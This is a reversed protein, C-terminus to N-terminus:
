IQQVLAPERKVQVTRPCRGGIKPGALSSSLLTMNLFSTNFHRISRAFTLATALTILNKLEWVMFDCQCGWIDFPGNNLSPIATRFIDCLRGGLVREVVYVWFPLVHVTYLVTCVCLFFFGWSLKFLILILILILVVMKKLFFDSASGGQLLDDPFSIRRRM